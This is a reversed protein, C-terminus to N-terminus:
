AERWAQVKASAKAILERQEDTWRPEGNVVETADLQGLVLMVNVCEEIDLDNAFDSADQEADSDLVPLDDIHLPM